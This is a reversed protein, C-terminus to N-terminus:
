TTCEQRNQKGIGKSIAWAEVMFVEGHGLNAYFGEKKLLNNAKDWELLYEVITRQVNTLIKKQTLLWIFVKVRPPIKLKWIFNWSSGISLEYYVKCSFTGNSTPGWICTFPLNGEFDVHISIIKKVAKPLLAQLLKEINWGTRSFIILCLKLSTLSILYPFAHATSQVPYAPHRSM